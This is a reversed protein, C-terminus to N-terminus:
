PMATIKRDVFAVNAPSIGASFEFKLKGKYDFAYVKGNSGFDLADTIYILKSIPDAKIGYVTKISTGDTIFNRTIIDETKVNLMLISSSQSTWDYNYVWATDGAITFNLAEFDTFTHKLTGSAVDVIQLRSKLDDYNGRSILYMEGHKDPLITYPNPGATIKKEETLTLPDIVSITDDYNPFNLGGSNSVWIKGYAATIGDPNRGVTILKTIELSTTDIVAVTGDFNCVFANTGYFAVKRPQRPKNGDFFPIQKLSKCTSTNVVEVQSSVNVVIYMKSGYIALDSGTDGLGRHNATYFCKKELTSDEFNFRTLSANNSNFLGENLVYVGTVITTTVAPTEVDPEPEKTCSYLAMSSLMLTVAFLNKKFLPTQKNM